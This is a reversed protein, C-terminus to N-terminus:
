VGKRDRHGIRLERRGILRDMRYRRLAPPAPMAWSDGAALERVTPAPDPPLPLHIDLPGFYNPRVIIRFSEHIGLQM